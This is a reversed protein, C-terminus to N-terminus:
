SYLSDAQDALRLQIRCHEQTSQLSPTACSCYYWNDERQPNTGFWLHNKIIIKLSMKADVISHKNLTFWLSHMTQM